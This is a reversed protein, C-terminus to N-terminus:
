IPVPSQAMIDLSLTPSLNHCPHCTRSSKIIDLRSFFPRVHPFFSFSFFRASSSMRTLFFLPLTHFSAVLAKGEFCARGSAQCLGLLGTLLPAFFLIFFIYPNHFLIPLSYYTSFSLIIMNAGLCLHLCMSAIVRECVYM